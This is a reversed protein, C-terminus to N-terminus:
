TSLSNVHLAVSVYNVNKLNYIFGAYLPDFIYIENKVNFIEMIPHGAGQKSTIKQSIRARIRPLPPLYVHLITLSPRFCQM